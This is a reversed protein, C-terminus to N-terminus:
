RYHMSLWPHELAEGASPREDKDFNMLYRVMDKADLSVGKWNLGDLNIRGVAIQDAIEKASDTKSTFPLKGSLM